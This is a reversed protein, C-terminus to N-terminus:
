RFWPFITRRTLALEFGNLPVAVPLPVVVVVVVVVAVVCCAASVSAVVFSGKVMMNLCKGDGAVKVKTYM